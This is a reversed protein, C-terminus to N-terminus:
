DILSSVDLQVGDKRGILAMLMFWDPPTNPPLIITTPLGGSFLNAQGYKLTRVSGDCFCVNCGATHKSAMMFPSHDVNGRRTGQFLGGSGIGMWTTKYLRQGNLLGGDIEGLGITNSTGDQVTL